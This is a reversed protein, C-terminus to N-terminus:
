PSVEVLVPQAGSRDIRYGGAGTAPVTRTGGSPDRREWGVIRGEAHLAVDTWPASWHLLPDFPAGRGIADHDVSVLRV